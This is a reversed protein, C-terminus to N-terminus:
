LVSKMASLAGDDRIMKLLRVTEAELGDVQTLDQGWMDNNSLVSHVLEEPSDNRHAYYFELVWRDDSVTYTNGAQRKCILGKDTLEQIDNTYFAIYGALSM